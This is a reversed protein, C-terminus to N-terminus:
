FREPLTRLRLGVGSLLLALGLALFLRTDIGTDALRAPRPANGLMADPASRAPAPAGPATQPTQTLNTDPDATSGGQDTQTQAPEDGFPDQYQEDGASQALALGSGGSGALVLTCCLLTLRQPLRM